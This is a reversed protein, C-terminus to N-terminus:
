GLANYTYKHKIKQSTYVDYSGVGYSRILVNKYSGKILKKTTKFQGLSQSQKSSKNLMYWSGWKSVSLKKYGKKSPTYKKGDFTVSKPTVKIQSFESKGKYCYWTGQIKAPTKTSAQASVPQTNAALFLGFLAVFMLVSNKFVKLM